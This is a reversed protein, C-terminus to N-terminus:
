CQRDDAQCQRAERRRLRCRRLDHGGALRESACRNGNVVAVPRDPAGLASDLDPDRADRRSFHVSGASGILRAGRDTCSVRPVSEDVQEAAAPSRKRLAVNNNTRGRHGAAGLSRGSAGTRGGPAHRRCKAIQGARDHTCATSNAPNAEPSIVAALDSKAVALVHCGSKELLTRAPPPRPERRTGTRREAVRGCAPDEVKTAARAPAARSWGPRKPREEGGVASGRSPGEALLDM